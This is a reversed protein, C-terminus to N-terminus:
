VARQLAAERVEFADLRKDHGYITFASAALPATFTLSLVLVFSRM